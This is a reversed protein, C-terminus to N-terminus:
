KRNDLQTPTVERPRYEGDKLTKSGAKQCISYKCLICSFLTTECMQFMIWTSKIGSFDNKLKFNTLITHNKEEKTYQLYEVLHKGLRCNSCANKSNHAALDSDENADSKAETCVKATLYAKDVWMKSPVAGGLRWTGEANLLKFVMMAPNSNQKAIHTYTHTFTAAPKHLSVDSATRIGRDSLSQASETLSPGQNSGRDLRWNKM